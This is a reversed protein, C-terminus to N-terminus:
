YTKIVKKDRIKIYAKKKEIKNCLEINKIELIYKNTKKESIIKINLIIMPTKIEINM